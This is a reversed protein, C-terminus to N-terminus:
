HIALEAERAAAAGSPAYRMRKCAVSEGRSLSFMPETEGTYAFGIKELM